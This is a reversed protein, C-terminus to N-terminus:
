TYNEYALTRQWAYDDFIEATVSYRLGVHELEVKIEGTDETRKVWGNYETTKYCQYYPGGGEIMVYRCYVVDGGYCAIVGDDLTISAGYAPIGLLTALTSLPASHGIISLFGLVISGLSMGASYAMYNRYVMDYTLNEKYNYVLGEYPQSTIGAWNFNVHEPGYLVRLKLILANYDADHGNNAAIAEPMVEEASLNEMGGRRCEVLISKKEEKISYEIVADVFPKNTADRKVGEINTVNFWLSRIGKGPKATVVEVQGNSLLTIAYLIDGQRYVSIEYCETSYNDILIREELNDEEMAFAPSANFVIICMALLVCLIRKKM